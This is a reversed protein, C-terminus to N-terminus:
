QKNHAGYWPKTTCFYFNYVVVISTDLEQDCAHCICLRQVIGSHLTPFVTDVDKEPRGRATMGAYAM